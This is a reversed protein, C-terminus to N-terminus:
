CCGNEAPGPAGILARQASTPESCCFWSESLRPREPGPVGISTPEPAGRDRRSLRRYTLDRIARYSENIAEAGVAALESLAAIEQQLEDLLPDPSRWTFGLAAKDYGTIAQELLEDQPELLLSGPPILLRVGYQVPDVNWILDNRAIFDFLELLDERVTWPTFPLLSPRIEVGVARLIAVAQEEDALVHGKDLHALVTESTSEFASIVFSLGYSALEAFLPAHRLIHSVKITADFSLEGHREHLQRAVALAHRPRNLFDPDAFHIHGAGALVLQDIDAAVAEKALPRSRGAYIVPVPCHRCTHNCGQSAEVAGVLRLEDGAVLRAYRDLTPLDGRAPLLWDDLERSKIPALGISVQTTEGEQGHQSDSAWSAWSLLAADVDGAAALDGPGLVGTTLAAPAYLGHFAIPLRPRRARLRELAQLGLRMATHMPVSCAVAEAWLLDEEPWDEVSLDRQRVEHGAARLLATPAACGLPQAGLEFTSLLLLRTM